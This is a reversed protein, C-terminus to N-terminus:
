SFVAYSVFSHSQLESTHEESRNLRPYLAHDPVIAARAENIRRDNARVAACWARPWKRMMRERRGLGRKLEGADSLVGPGVRKWAKWILQEIDDMGRIYPM